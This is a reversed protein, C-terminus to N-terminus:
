KNNKVRFEVIKKILDLPLPKDLPFQIAGKSTKYLKLEEEFKTIASPTPYFGIHNKFAAFYVLVKNLKFAPMQYSITEVAEPVINKITKRLLELKEKISGTYMNIYEDINSYSKKNEMKEGLLIIDFFHLLLLYKAM